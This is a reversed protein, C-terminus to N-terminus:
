SKPSTTASITFGTRPMVQARIPHRGAKLQVDYYSNLNDLGVVAQGEELLRKALHFGIFGACGTILMQKPKKM